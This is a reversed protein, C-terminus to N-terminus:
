KQAEILYRHATAFFAGQRDLMRHLARLRAEYKELSFDPIQWAIVKLYFVIAGIDYFISDLLEEEARALQFGAAEFSSKERNFTWNLAAAELPGDLYQNIQICNRPGVQQTLFIGGPTLIRRIEALEYSEHRNIVLDFSGAAFPLLDGESVPVVQIGLPGLRQRAVPLNPPHGETAYTSEPLGPLSAL